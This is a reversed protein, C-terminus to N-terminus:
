EMHFSTLAKPWANLKWFGYWCLLGQLMLGRSLNFWSCATSSVLVGERVDEVRM